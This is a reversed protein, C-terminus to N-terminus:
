ARLDSPGLEFGPKPFSGSSALSISWTVGTTGGAHREMQMCPQRATNFEWPERLKAAWSLMIMICKGTAGDM